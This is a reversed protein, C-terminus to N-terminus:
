KELQKAKEKFKRSTKFCLICIIGTILCLLPMVVLLVLSFILTIIGWVFASVSAMKYVAPSHEKNNTGNNNEKNTSSM